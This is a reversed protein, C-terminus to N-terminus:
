EKSQFIAYHFLAGQLYSWKIECQLCFNKLRRRLFWKNLTIILLVFQHAVLRMRHTLCIGSLIFLVLWVVVSDIIRRGKM